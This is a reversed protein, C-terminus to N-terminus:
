LAFKINQTFKTSVAMILLANVQISNDVSWLSKYRINVDWFYITLYDVIKQYDQYFLDGLDKDVVIALEIVAPGSAASSELPM